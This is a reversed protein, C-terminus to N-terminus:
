EDESFVEICLVNIDNIIIMSEDKLKFKIFQGQRISEPIVGSFTRKIGDKFHVIQTVYKSDTFYKDGVSSRLDQKKM